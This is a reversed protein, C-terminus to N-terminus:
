LGVAVVDYACARVCSQTGADPHGGYCPMIDNSYAEFGLHRFAACVVQSQECAILVKTAM